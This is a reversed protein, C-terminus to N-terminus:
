PQMKGRIESAVTKAAFIEPAQTVGPFAAKEGTGMQIVIITQFVKPPQWRETLQVPPAGGGFGGTSAGGATGADSVGRPSSTNGGGTGTSAGGPGGIFGGSRAKLNDEVPLEVRQSKTEIVAFWEQGSEATLEAARLLAFEAVQDRKMGRAGTYVVTFRGGDAPTTLYGPSNVETAAQYVPAPKKALAIGSVILGLAAIGVLRKM